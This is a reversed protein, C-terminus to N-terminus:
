LFLPKAFLTRLTLFSLPTTICFIVPMGISTCPYHSFLRGLFCCKKPRFLRLVPYVLSISFAVFVMEAVTLGRDRAARQSNDKLLLYFGIAIAAFMATLCSVCVLVPFIWGQEDQIEPWMKAMVPWVVPATWCFAMFVSVPLVQAISPTAEHRNSLLKQYVAHGAVVLLGIFSAFLVSSSYLVLNANWKDALPIVDYHTFDGWGVYDWFQFHLPVSSFLIAICSIMFIMAKRLLVRQSLRPPAVTKLVPQKGLLAKLSVYAFPLIFVTYLWDIWQIGDIHLEDEHRQFASAYALLVLSLAFIIQISETWPKQRRLPWHTFLSLVLVVTGLGFCLGYILEYNHFAHYVMPIEDLDILQMLGTHMTGRFSIVWTALILHSSLLLAFVLTVRRGKDISKFSWGAACDVGM